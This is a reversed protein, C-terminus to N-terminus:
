KVLLKQGGVIYVGAPLGDTAHTAKVGRRLLAGRMDYVNVHTPLVVVKANDISTIDVGGLPLVADGEETTLGLNSGNIWGSNAAIVTNRTPTVKGEANIYGYNVAVTDPVCLTGVLGTAEVPESAYILSGGDNLKVGDKFVYNFQLLGPATPDDYAQFLFPTGAPIGDSSAEYNALVLEDSENKGLVKYAIGDYAMDVTVPLTLIRWTGPAQTAPWYLTELMNLESPNVVEFTFYDNADVAGSYAILQLSAPTNVYSNPGSRFMIRGAAGSPVVLQVSKPTPSQLASDNEPAFYMGTAVNRLTVKGNDVGEVLWLYRADNKALVTDTVVIDELITGTPVDGMEGRTYYLGGSLQNGNSYVQARWSVLGNAVQGNVYLNSMGRIICYSGVEPLNFSNIFTDTAAKMKDVEANIEAATKNNTDYEKAAAIAANFADVATQPYYAIDDGIMAETVGAAAAEAASIASTLRSPTPLELALKDYAAQLSAILEETAQGAALAANAKELEGLVLAKTEESVFRLPSTADDKVGQYVNLEGLAMFSKENANSNANTNLEIKFYRYSGDFYIGATGVGETDLPATAGPIGITWNVTPSGLLTWAAVDPNTVDVENAGYVNLVTPYLRNTNRRALKISLGTSIAEKLDVGVYATVGAPGSGSWISQWHTSFDKDILGPLGKGDGTQTMTSFLQDETEILGDVDFHEDQPAGTVTIGSVYASHVENALSKLRQNLVAQKAEEVLADINDASVPVFNFCNNGSEVANWNMVAGNVFKAHYQRKGSPTSQTTTLVWSAVGNTGTLTIQISDRAGLTFAFNNDTTVGYDSATTTYGGNLYEGTSICQVYYMDGASSPTVKWVNQIADATLPDPITYDQVTWLFDLSTGNSATKTKWTLWRNSNNYIFYYGESLPVRSAVLANYADELEKCVADAEEDTVTAQTLYNNAKTNAAQADAVAQAGYYGPQTGVPFNTEDVGQPFYVKLYSDIKYLGTLPAIDYIKWVNTDTYPYYYVSNQYGNLFLWALSEPTDEGSQDYKEGRTLIFGPSTLDQYITEGKQSAYDRGTVDTTQYNLLTMAMAEEQKDTFKLTSETDFVSIYDPDAVYKGSKVNKLNYLPHGDVTGGTAVFEFICDTTLTASQAATTSLYGTGKVSSGSGDVSPKLLVQKGVVAEPTELPDGEAFGQALAPVVGAVLFLLLSLLLSRRRMNM